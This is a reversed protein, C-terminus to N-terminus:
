ESVEFWGLGVLSLTIAGDLQLVRLGSLQGIHRFALGSTPLVQVVLAQLLPTCPHPRPRHAPVCPANLCPCAAPPLPRPLLTHTDPGPVALLCAQLSQLAPSQPRAVPQRAACAGMRVDGVAGVGGGANCTPGRRHPPPDRQWALAVCLGRNGVEWWAGLGAGVGKGKGAM